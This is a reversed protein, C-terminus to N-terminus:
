CSTGSRRGSYCNCWPVCRHGRGALDASSISGASIPRLREREWGIHYLGRIILGKKRNTPAFRLRGAFKWISPYFLGVSVMLLVAGLLRDVFPGLPFLHFHSVCRMLVIGTIVGPISGSLLLRTIGYNVNKLRLHTAAGATKTLASLILDTGVAMVPQVGFIFIMIPTILSGGGMGTMGIMTGVFFGAVIIEASPIWAIISTM